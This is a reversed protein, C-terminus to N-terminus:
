FRSQEGNKDQTMDQALTRVSKCIVTAIKPSLM